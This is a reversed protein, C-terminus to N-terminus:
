IKSIKKKRESVQVHAVVQDAVQRPGAEVAELGQLGDVQAEIVEPLNVVAGELSEFPEWYELNICVKGNFIKLFNCVRIKM